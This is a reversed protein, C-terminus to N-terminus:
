GAPATYTSSGGGGGLSTGPSGFGAGGGAGGGSAAIFAGTNELAAYAIGVDGATGPPMTSGQALAATQVLQLAEEKDSLSATSSSLDTAIATQIQLDTPMGGSSAALAMLDGEIKAALGSSAASPTDAAFAASAGSAVTLIAAVALGTKGFAM